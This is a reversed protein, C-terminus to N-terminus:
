AERMSALRRDIIQEATRMISDVVERCSLVEDILGQSQGAWWLGGDIDGGGLVERRGREGSALHAVDDFTAGPRRSLEVIEQSVANRAVRATNRFERFVLTTAREDNAVIQRKVNDHVPAETTAVFRTGMNIADAGLALAAVLGAGDAFGGSAIIPIRLKRAAANILVLGPVDDEGPHGACEFGDISIADVGLKEAKLAHRVAVAKHIVKVGAAKFAPLHPEPNAGATEVITVGSDVIADRYEDYPVPTLTPLITLNVGFPKDTMERVRVIEKALAEPTPQTLATLFGLAGAEAVAAILEAKGVATMGGCVIPHEVGFEETFRTKLM